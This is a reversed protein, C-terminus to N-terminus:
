LTAKPGVYRWLLQVIAWAAINRCIASKDFFGGHQEAVSERNASLHFSKSEIKLAGRAGYNEIRRNEKKM